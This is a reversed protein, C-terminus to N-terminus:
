YMEPYMDGSVWLAHGDTIANECAVRFEAIAPHGPSDHDFRDLEGSLKNLQHTPVTLTPSKYRLLAIRRLITYGHDRPATSRFLSEYCKQPLYTETDTENGERRVLIAM